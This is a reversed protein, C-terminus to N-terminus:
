KGTGQEMFLTCTSGSSMTKLADKQYDTLPLRKNQHVARIRIELRKKERVSKGRRQDIIQLQEHDSHNNRIVQRAESEKRKKAQKDRRKM